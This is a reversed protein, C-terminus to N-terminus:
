GQHRPMCAREYLTSGMNIITEEATCFRKLKIYDVQKNENTNDKNKTFDLSDNGLDIDLFKPAQGTIKRPTKYNGIKPELRYDIKLLNQTHHILVATWKEWCWKYFLTNKEWHIKM